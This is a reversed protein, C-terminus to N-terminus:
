SLPSASSLLRRLWCPWACPWSRSASCRVVLLRREVLDGLPVVLTLGAAYGLQTLTIVLGVIGSSSHFVRAITDLLPQAYYLNAVVLGCAIAFIWVLKRSLAGDAASQTSRDRSVPPSTQAM